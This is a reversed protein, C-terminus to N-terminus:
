FHIIIELFDVASMSKEIQIGIDTNISQLNM